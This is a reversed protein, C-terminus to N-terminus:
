FHVKFLGLAELTAVIGFGIWALRSLTKIEGRFEKTTERNEEHKEDFEERLDALDQKANQEKHRDRRDVYQIIDEKLGPKGNGHVTKDLRDLVERM